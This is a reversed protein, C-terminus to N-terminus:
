VQFNSGFVQFHLEFVRLKQQISTVGCIAKESTDELSFTVM